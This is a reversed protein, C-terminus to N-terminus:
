ESQDKLMIQNKKKVLTSRNKGIGKRPHESDEEDDEEDTKDFRYAFVDMGNETERLYDIEDTEYASSEAESPSVFIVDGNTEIDSLKWNDTPEPSIPGDQEMIYDIIIHRNEDTSALITEQEADALHGGGGGARYNNTVVLFEQEETM